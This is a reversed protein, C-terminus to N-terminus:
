LYVTTWLFCSMVYDTIFKELYHPVLTLTFHSINCQDQKFNLETGSPVFITFIQECKVFKDGIIYHGKKHVVTYVLADQNLNLNKLAKKANVGIPVLPMLCKPQTPTHSNTLENKM